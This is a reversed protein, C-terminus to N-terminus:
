HVHYIQQLDVRGRPLVNWQERKGLMIYLPANSKTVIFNHSELSLHLQVAMLRGGEPDWCTTAWHLNAAGYNAYGKSSCWKKKLLCTILAAYNVTWLWSHWRRDRPSPPSKWKIAVWLPSLWVVSWLKHPLVWTRIWVKKCRKVSITWIKWVFYIKFILFSEM